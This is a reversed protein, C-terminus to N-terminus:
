PPCTRFLLYKPASRGLRLPPLPSSHLPSAQTAWSPCPRLPLPVPRRAVWPDGGKRGAVGNVGVFDSFPNGFSCFLLLIREYSRSFVSLLEKQHAMITYVLSRPLQRHGALLLQHAVHGPLRLHQHWCPPPPAFRCRQRRQMQAQPNHQTAQFAKPRLQLQPPLETQLRHPRKGRHPHDTLGDVVPQRARCSPHAGNTLLDAAPLRLLRHPQF